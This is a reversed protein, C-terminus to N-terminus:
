QQYNKELKIKDQDEKKEVENNIKEQEEKKAQKDKEKKEKNTELHLVPDNNFINENIYDFFMDQLERSSNGVDEGDINLYSVFNVVANSIREKEYQNKKFSLIGSDLFVQIENKFGDVDIVEKNDIVFELIKLQNEITESSYQLKDKIYKYLDDSCSKKSDAKIYKNCWDSIFQNISPKSGGITIVLDLFKTMQEFTLSEEQIQSQFDKMKTHLNDKIKKVKCSKCSNLMKELDRLFDDFKEYKQIENNDLVGFKSKVLEDFQENVLEMLFSVDDILNQEKRKRDENWKEFAENINKGEEEDKHNIQLQEQAKLKETIIKRAHM